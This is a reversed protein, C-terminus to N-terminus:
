LLGNVAAPVGLSLSLSLASTQLLMCVMLYFSSATAYYCTYDDRADQPVRAPESGFQLSQNKSSACQNAGEMHM